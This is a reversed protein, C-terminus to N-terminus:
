TVVFRLAADRLTRIAFREATLLAQVFNHISINHQLWTICTEKLEPLDYYDAANLLENAVFKLDEVKDTYMFRIVSIMTQYNFNKVHVEGSKKEKMENKFMAQFVPSRALVFKHAEIVNSDVTIIKVDTFIKDRLIDELHTSNM